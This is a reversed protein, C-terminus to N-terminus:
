QGLVTGDAVQGGEAGLRGEGRVVVDAGFTWDGEVTLRSAEKMSPVGHPFRADFDGILKYDDSLTVLPVTDVAKRLALDDTLSYADSRILLLDSTAKVPLFRARDVVIATAGEFVEIAAGMASEIQYVPTSSKDGPDVTKENRILPLGMVGGREDLIEQLRVLDFWLNNTHFFPHRDEDTFFDMEDAPTQATDRLILRGDEKRVALHGGKRDAATRRCLEAAYPAGSAAFWGALEPSPEAGLNDSNSVCAYRFGADILQTLVGSAFLATYIDGHGPPCWELSPDAEWEVPTLDDKRLKPEKNQLFDLPLGEVALDPYQELVELTDERTRFSNMFLLPLRAGTRERASLVQEALIQLFNKGDRVPLLTKAKDLGMSTGLGGNLKIVVLKSFADAADDESVTEDALKPPNLYPEITDEPIQGTTGEELQRYFDSFVSIAAEPVSAERMKRQAHSLGQESM